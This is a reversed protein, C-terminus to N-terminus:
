AHTELVLENHRSLECALMLYFSDKVFHMSNSVFNKNMVYRGDLIVGTILPKFGANKIKSIIAKTNEDNLLGSIYDRVQEIAGERISTERLGPYPRKYEFFVLGYYADIRGYHRSVFGENIHVRYEYEPKIGLRDWVERRLVDEVEIMFNREDCRPDNDQCLLEYKRAVERIRETIEPLRFSLEELM